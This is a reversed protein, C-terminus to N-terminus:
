CQIYGPPVVDVLWVSNATKYFRYGDAAMQKTDVTLLVPKGYRSGVSKAVWESESLHVHHRQMKKLGETKIADIFREATGHFLTNPPDIPELALDISISHGQNARIKTRDSNFVFRQKDNTEVVTEILAQTLEYQTTKSVLQEVSAWGQADLALGIAQPEHRLLYSLYKSIDKLQKQM